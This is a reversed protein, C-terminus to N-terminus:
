SGGAAALQDGTVGEASWIFVPTRGGLQDLTRRIDSASYCTLWGGDAVGASSGDSLASLVGADVEALPVEKGGSFSDGVKAAGTYSYCYGPLGLEVKTRGGAAAVRQQWARFGDVMWDRTAIPGAVGGDYPTHMDYTMVRIVGVREVIKAMAAEFGATSHGSPVALTIQKDPMRATMVDLLRSFDAAKNVPLYEWDIGVVSVPHGIAAETSAVAEGLSSVFREPDAAGAEFGDLIDQHSQEDGGWGGVELAVTAQGGLKGVVTAVGAPIGPAPVEGDPTPEAFAIAVDVGAADLPLAGIRDYQEPGLWTPLYLSIRDAAAGAQDAAAGAPQEPQLSTVTARADPADAPSEAAATCGALLTVSLLAIPLAEHPRM